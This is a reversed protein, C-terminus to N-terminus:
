KKPMLSFQIFRDKLNKSLEKPAVGAYKKVEHIFHAQDTFNQEPFLKGEKIHGFSARFRLINCYTKLPLGFWYNFYRNIQRSSWGVTEALESVPISGHSAYLLAVLKRKREDVEQNVLSTIHKSVKQCFRDFDTLDDPSLGWFDVPLVSGTNLLSAVSTHLIYEVALLTLSVAFIKSKPVIATASPEVDLGRIMVHYANTPSVSFFIDIRGDPLVVVQQQQDSPNCLMWYSEVFDSLTRDPEVMEFNLTSVLM